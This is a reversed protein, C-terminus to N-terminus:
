PNPVCRTEIHYQQKEMCTLPRVYRNADIWQLLEPLSQGTMPWEILKQAETIAYVTNSQPNFKVQIVGQHLNMRHLVAGTAFDWLVINGDRAGSVIYKGDPSISISTPSEGAGPYSRRINQTAVDVLFLDVPGASLIQSGDPSFAVPLTSSYNLFQYRGIEKGSSIDWLIVRGLNGIGTIAHSGDSDFVLSTVPQTSEFQRVLKCTKVDLLIVQGSKNEPDLTGVLLYRSDPSFALARVPLDSDDFRCLVTGFNLKWVMVTPTTKENTSTNAAWGAVAIYGNNPSIGVAGASVIGNFGSYLMFARDNGLDWLVPTDVDNVTADSLLFYQGDPSIDFASLHDVKFNIENYALQLGLNWLRLSGSVTASLALLGDQSITIANNPDPSDLYSQQKELDKVSLKYMASQCTVLVYSIDPNLAMDGPSCDFNHQNLVAGSESDIKRIYIDPIANNTYLIWSADPSIAVSNIKHGMNDFTSVPDSKLLNWVTLSGDEQASVAMLMGSAAAISTIPVPSSDYQQLIAGSKLTWLILSGDMSSSLLGNISSIIALDSIGASHGIFPHIAEGELSWQILSGDSSGSIVSRGDPSFAVATVWDTYAPWRHLVQYTALDWLILEGAHCVGTADLDACSGSIAIKADPSMAVAQVSQSHGNLIARTGLSFAVERLSQLVEASKPTLNIAERALMLALDGRGAENAQEAARALNLSQNITANSASRQWAFISFIALLIALLGTIGILIARRRLQRTYRVGEEARQMETDALKQAAALERQHQAEREAAESEVSAVSASLFEREPENMDDPHTAAWEKAQALHAGRWLTDPERDTALWDETSETLHRHLRLGERNEELWGRLTPWERILAEHAVQVSDETTTILRADALAKLV